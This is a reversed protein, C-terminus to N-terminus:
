IPKFFLLCDYWKFTLSSPPTIKHIKGKLTNFQTESLNSVIAYEQEDGEFIVKYQINIDDPNDIINNFCDNIEQKELQSIKSLNIQIGSEILYMELKNKNDDKTQSAIINSDMGLSDVFKEVKEKHSNSFIWGCLGNKLSPNWKGGLFKLTEKHTKTCNGTVVFSKDSYKIIQLM